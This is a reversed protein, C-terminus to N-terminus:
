INVNFKKFEKKLQTPNKYHISNIGIKRPPMVDDEIKDGIMIAQNPKCKSKKLIKKFGKLSPKIEGYEFSFMTYDVYKLLPTTKKIQKISFITSNSLLAIKYGQKRLKKLMSITHLYLREKLEAGKRLDSLLNINEKTKEVGMNKCLNEYARYRSKWKKTQVSIEFIKVFKKLAMKTHTKKLMEKLCYHHFDGARYALTGWLDFIILKIKEEKKNM